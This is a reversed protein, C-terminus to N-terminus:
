LDIPVRMKIETGKFRGVDLKEMTRRLCRGLASRAARAPAITAVKVKGSPRLVLQLDVRGFMREALPRQQEAAVCRGVGPAARRLAGLINVDSAQRPRADSRLLSALRPCDLSKGVRACRIKSVRWPGTVGASFWTAWLVPGDADRPDLDLAVVRDAGFSRAVDDRVEVVDLGTPRLADQPAPKVQMELAALERVVQQELQALATSPVPCPGMCQLGFLVVVLM